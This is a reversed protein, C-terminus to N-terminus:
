YPKKVIDFDTKKDSAISVIIKINETEMLYEQEFTYVWNGEDESMKLGGSLGKGKLKLLAEKRTWIKLFEKMDGTRVAEIEVERFYREATKVAKNIDFNERTEEEADIGVPNDSLAMLIINKTHTLSIECDEAVPKGMNDRYINIADPNKAYKGTKSNHIKSKFCERIFEDSDSYRNREGMYIEIM